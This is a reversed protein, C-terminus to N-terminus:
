VGSARRSVELTAQPVCGQEIRDRVAQEARRRAVNPSEGSQALPTAVTVEWRAAVVRSWWQGVQWLDAAVEDRTTSDALATASPASSSETANPVADHVLRFAVRDAKATEVTPLSSDTASPACRPSTAPRQRRPPTL